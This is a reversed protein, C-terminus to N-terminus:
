RVKPSQASTWWCRLARCPSTSQKYGNLVESWATRRTWREKCYFVSRMPSFSANCPNHIKCSKRAHNLAPFVIKRTQKRCNDDLRFAILFFSLNIAYLSSFLQTNSGVLPVFREYRIVQTPTLCRKMRIKSRLELHQGEIIVKTLTSKENMLFKTGFIPQTDRFLRQVVNQSVWENFLRREM